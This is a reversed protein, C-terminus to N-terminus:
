QFHGDWLSWVASATPDFEWETGQENNIENAHGLHVLAGVMSEWNSDRDFDPDLSLVRFVEAANAPDEIVLNAAMLYATRDYQDSARSERDALAHLREELQASTWGRMIMELLPDKSISM